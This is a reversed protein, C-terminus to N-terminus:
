QNVSDLIKDAVQGLTMSELEEEPIEIGFREGIKIALELVDLSDLGLDDITSCEKPEESTVFNAELEDCLWELIEKRDM